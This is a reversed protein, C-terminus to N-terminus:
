FEEYLSVLDVYGKDYVRMFMDLKNQRNMGHSNVIPWNEKGATSTWLVRREIDLALLDCTKTNQEVEDNLTYKDKWLAEYVVDDVHSLYAKADAGLMRKVPTPIDGYIAEPMDHLLCNFLIDLDDPFLMEAIHMCLLTHQAVTLPERDKHHGNFRYLYNLSASIDKLSIDEPTLDELDVYKGSSLRTPAKLM